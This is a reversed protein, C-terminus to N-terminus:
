SNRLYCPQHNEVVRQACHGVKKYLKITSDALDRLSLIDEFHKIYSDRNFM